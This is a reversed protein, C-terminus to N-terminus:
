ICGYFVISTSRSITITGIVHHYHRKLYCHIVIVTHFSLIQFFYLSSMHRYIYICHIYIYIIYIIHRSFLYPLSSKKQIFLAVPEQKKNTYTIVRPNAPPASALSVTHRMKFCAMLFSRALFMEHRPIFPFIENSFRCRFATTIPLCKLQEDSNILLM